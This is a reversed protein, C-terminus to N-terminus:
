KDAKRDLKSDIRNLQQKLEGILEKISGVDKHAEEKLQYREYLEKRLAQQENQLRSIDDQLRKVWIGGFVGALALAIQFAIDVTM